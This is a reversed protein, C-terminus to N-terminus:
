EDLATMFTNFWLSDESGGTLEHRLREGEGNVWGTATKEDAAELHLAYARIAPDPTENLRMLRPRTLGAATAAPIYTARVWKLFTEELRPALFFTTNAITM